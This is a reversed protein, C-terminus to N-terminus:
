EQEKPKQVGPANIMARVAASMMAKAAARIHGVTLPRRAERDLIELPMAPDCGIPHNDPYGTADLAAGVFPLLAESLEQVAATPARKNWAEAAETKRSFTALMQYAICDIKTNGCGVSWTASKPNVSSGQACEEFVAPGGCFPCPLLTILTSM